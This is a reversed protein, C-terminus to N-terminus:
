RDEEDDGKPGGKGRKPPVKPAAAAVAKGYERARSSLDKRGLRDYAKVLEGYIEAQEAAPPKCLLATNLEYVASLHRGTRALARAYLRHTAATHVDVFLAGEGVKRAEEWEGREVLKKLLLRWVRRDHQELPAIRRLAALEAAADKKRKALEWLGALPESQTPDLRAAAELHGGLAKDDREAEAISAAEMRVSYGDHGGAIVADLERRAGALDKDGLAFRARVFHADPQAPDLRLAEDLTADAEPKQGDALLALALAVHKKANKDDALVAKRADDLPPAHLDPVFQTAYRALRPELWKKFRRDLEDPGVGLAGQIVEPTREGAGWRPLMAVVKDFGFEQAAFVLIQSAAYYATTVEEASDVHTFARNMAEVRPIRGGRLAAFLAPDEERQWEPRRVITEYESLGETFWRPVHAKSQQIAFVHGLEHWLVNGWNFPGAMPSMAALTQGFCVGQIGVNPLGSTRISFAQPDAYLEITVPTKPTFKYRTVMSRWAEELMRPVYRELVAKEDKHYRIRFTTGDVTVYQTAIDKDFLDLTNPVRPNFKDKKAADRLADLGGKEDGARILNLGLTAFAKGDNKDVKVAERMLSVIEDYRHEWDAFESVIEFFRAYQPNKDLVRQKAAAFGAKDDALFRIAAKMSLLPLDGPNTKLGQDAAADAAAIDLDRLALGAKVFYADTFGPDVELAQKVESEAAEFDLTSDLKVNAMAVHLRPDRPALRLAEKVVQGAHGPDYKELFLDARWLLTEVRAGGGAKEADNYADNADRASRLLHAARGVLSLGEADNKAIKDDNYDEVLTMLPARAEGRRGAEILLEGLLVRARRAEPDREVARLAAIAEDTKGTTALSRAVVPAAAAKGKKGLKAIEKATELAADHRGTLQRIEAVQVLAALRDPGGKVAALEREAAAYDGKKVAEAARALPTDPRKTTPADTPKDAFATPTALASAALLACIVLRRLRM